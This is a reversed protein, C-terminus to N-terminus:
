CDDPAEHMGPPHLRLAPIGPLVSYCPGSRGPNRRASSQQTM